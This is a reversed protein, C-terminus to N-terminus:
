DICLKLARRVAEFVAKGILHGAATHKGAYIVSQSAESPRPAAMVACDTGTGTAPLSTQISPIQAELVAATRAEIAIALAELHAEFSLPASFACLLNITGPDSGQGPPDGARLANSVGATVVAHAWLNEYSAEAEAFRSIDASTLLGVAHVLSEEELKRRLFERPDIGPRLDEATVRQWVVTDGEARGGGHIAWSLMRQPQKFRAILRGPALELSLGNLTLTKEM